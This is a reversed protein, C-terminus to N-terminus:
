PSGTQLWLEPGCCPLVQVQHVGPALYKGFPVRFTHDAGPELSADFTGLHVQIPVPTRNVIQLTQDPRVTACRPDPYGSFITITVLSGEFSACIAAAPLQSAPTALPYPEARGNTNSGPACSVM